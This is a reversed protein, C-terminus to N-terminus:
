SGFLCYCSDTPVAAFPGISTNKRMAEFYEFDALWMHAEWSLDRTGIVDFYKQMALTQSKALKSLQAEMDEFETQAGFSFPTLPSYCGPSRPQDPSGCFRRHNKTTFLWILRDLQEDNRSTMDVSKYKRSLILEAREAKDSTDIAM